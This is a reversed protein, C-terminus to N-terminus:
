AMANVKRALGSKARSANNPHIVRSKAAKDIRKMTLALEIQANSKDGGEIAVMLKKVQTRMASRKVKNRLQAKDARAVTKKRHTRNPM